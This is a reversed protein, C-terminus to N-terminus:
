KYRQTGEFVAPAPGIQIIWLENGKPEIFIDFSPGAAPFERTTERTGLTVM